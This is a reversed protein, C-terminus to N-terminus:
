EGALAHGVWHWYHSTLGKSAPHKVIAFSTPGNSALYFTGHPGSHEIFPVGAILQWWQRYWNDFSYFIVATPKREQVRQALHLARPRGYYQKYSERTKLQPLDMNDRYLWHGTSPSPLPLFELLCTGGDSRALHDRQYYRLHDATISQQGQAALLIRILKGWTTQVPPHNCFWRTVAGSQSDAVFSGLEACGRDHWRTIRSINEEPTRGGGEEMGVFWFPASYTGYGYFTDIYNTLLQPDFHM